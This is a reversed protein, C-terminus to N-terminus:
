CNKDYKMNEQIETFSLPCSYFRFHKLYGIFSGAFEKELPLVFKPPTRFDLTIEDALGQTGGGLSINYPVTEQKGYLDNLAKFNFMPLEKSVMVLKGNVYIMLRMTDNVTTRSEYKCLPSISNLAAMYVNNYLSSITKELRHIPLINVSINTWECEKVMGPKSFESEIAYRDPEEEESSSESCDKIMYKYGISGDDKIQLAFANRYLDKLLDYKRSKKDKLEDINNITYGDCTRNFLLFYNDMQPVVIDYYTIDDNEEDYNDITFGDCTRNFTLFKNDTTFQIVNPQNLSFGDCTKLDMDIDIVDDAEIYDDEVYKDCDTNVPEKDGGSSNKGCKRPSTKRENEQWVHHYDDFWVTNDNYGAYWEPLTFKWKHVCPEGDVPKEDPEPNCNTNGEYDVYESNLDYDHKPTTNDSHPENYRVYRSNLCSDCEEVEEMYENTYNLPSKDMEADVDFYHWWKNEARTGMFFFIGKNDPHTDNLTPKDHTTDFDECKNLMFELTWGKDLATPLIKYDYGELLFFGQYFGGNLRSVVMNDKEVIDNDYSYIRNNGDVKTLTLRMDGSEITKKSETFLEFFEKNSIRDKQYTIQGNDMGTYGFNCLEAGENIANEWKYDKKAYIKDFWVCDPDDTDVYASLCETALGSAGGFAGDDCLLHFDWYEDLNLFSDFVNRNHNLINSITAM